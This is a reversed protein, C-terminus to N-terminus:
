PTAFIAFEALLAPLQDPDFAFRFELSQHLKALRGEVLAHGVSDTIRVRLQFTDPSLGVLEAAGRREAELNRLEEVFVKLSEAGVWVSGRGCFGEAEITLFFETDGASPLHSPVRDLVAIELSNAGERLVM